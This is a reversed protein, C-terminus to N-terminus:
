SNSYKTAAPLIESSKNTTAYSSFEFSKEKPKLASNLNRPLAGLARSYLHFGGMRPAPHLYGGKDVEGSVQTM